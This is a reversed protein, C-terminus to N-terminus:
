SKKRKRLHYTLALAICHRLEGEAIRDGPRFVLVRNGEFSFSGPYLERFRDVLGTHCIFAMAVSGDARDALRVSSGIRPKAPAFSPEGWKISEEIAGVGETAAATDHILGRLKEFLAKQGPTM